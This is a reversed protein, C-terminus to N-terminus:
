FTRSYSLQIVTWDRDAYLNQFFDLRPDPSDYDGSTRGLKVRWAHQLNSWRLGISAQQSELGPAASTFLLANEIEGSDEYHRGEVYVAWGEAFAWDILVGGYWADFQPNEHAGGAVLRAVVQEGLAINLAGEGGVRWDRESVRSARVEARSRIRPSLINETAISFTTGNLTERGRRLGEFDIEYGPAVEDRRASASVELFGSARVYEWRLGLGAGGGRPSPTHYTDGPLGVRDAFQQRYFEALWITRYNTYGDYGSASLTWELNERLRQRALGQVAFSWEELSASEGLFDFPVPVYDLSFGNSAVSIDGSWSKEPLEWRHNANLQYLDVDDTTVWEFGLDWRKEAHALPAILVLSVIGLVRRM